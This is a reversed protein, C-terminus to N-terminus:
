AGLDWLHRVDWLHHIPDHIFYRSFSEVTFAEGDSRYGTRTWQEDTAISNFRDALV